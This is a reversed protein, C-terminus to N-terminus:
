LAIINEQEICPINYLEGYKHAEYFSTVSVMSVPSDLVLNEQKDGDKMLTLVYASYNSNGIKMKVELEKLLKVLEEIEIFVYSPKLPSSEELTFDFLQMLVENPLNIIAGIQEGSCEVLCELSTNDRFLKQINTTRRKM